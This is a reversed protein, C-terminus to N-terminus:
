KKEAKAKAVEAEYAKNLDRCFERMFKDNSQTYCMGGMETNYKSDPGEEKVAKAKVIIEAVKQIAQQQQVEKKAETAKTVYYSAFGLGIMVALFLVLAYIFSKDNTVTQNKM